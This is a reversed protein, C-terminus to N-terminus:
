FEIDGYSGGEKTNEKENLYGDIKSAQFLTAPRLYKDMDTGKWQSSKIDVVKKLEDVSYDKLRPEILRYNSATNRYHKGAKKNLYAIVTKADTHDHEHSSSLIDKDLRNVLRNSLRNGECQPVMGRTSHDYVGESQPVIGGTSHYPLTGLTIYRKDIQKSDKKYIMTTELLGLDVLKNISKSVTGPKLEIGDAIAKNSMFCKGNVNLMTYITGFVLKDSSKLDLGTLTDLPVQIFYRPTNEGMM